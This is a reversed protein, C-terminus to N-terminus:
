LIGKCIDDYYTNLKQGKNHKYTSLRIDIKKCWM